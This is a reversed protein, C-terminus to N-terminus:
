VEAFLAKVAAMQALELQTIAISAARANPGKAARVEEMMTILGAHLSKITRVRPDESPNFRFLVAKMATESAVVEGGFNKSSDGEPSVGNISIKVQM